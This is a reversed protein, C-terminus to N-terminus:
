ASILHEMRLHYDIQYNTFSIDKKKKKQEYDSLFLRMAFMRVNELEDLNKINTWVYNDMNERMQQM